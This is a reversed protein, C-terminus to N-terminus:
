MLKIIVEVVKKNIAYSIFLQTTKYTLKKAALISKNDMVVVFCTKNNNDENSLRMVNAILDPSYLFCHRQEFTRM